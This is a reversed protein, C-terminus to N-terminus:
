GDGHGEQMFFALETATHLPVRGTEVRILLSIGTKQAYISCINGPIFAQIIDM